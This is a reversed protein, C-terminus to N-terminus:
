KTIKDLAEELCEDFGAGGNYYLLQYSKTGDGNDYAVIAEYPNLEENEVKYLTKTKEHYFYKMADIESRIYEEPTDYFDDERWEPQIEDLLESVSKDMKILKGRYHVTESM